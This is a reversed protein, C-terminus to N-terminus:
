SSANRSRVWGLILLVIGLLGLPAAILAPTMMTSLEAALDAANPTSSPTANEQFTWMMGSITAILCLAALALFGGGAWLLWRSRRTQPTTSLSSAPEYPNPNM